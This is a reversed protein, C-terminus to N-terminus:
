LNNFFSLDWQDQWAISVRDGTFGPPYAAPTFRMPLWVYRSDRLDNKNWIDAMFIFAGPKGAVPFVFTSQAKFTIEAGPGSCPNGLVEWEGLMAGAAGIEAQNPDWGTCYSSIIFYRGKRKFVAPAERSQKEFIRTFQGSPKLYDDALRSVHTTANGESSHLLYAAGDEDQFLTMDRSEAGDPRLSGLYRYPGTPAESVAVGTRAYAYNATDLHLGMVYQRTLPNYIVKPREAVKSPHLDHSADEPVAPLVIGEDKWNYLDTSSYCHVGIVDVRHLLGKAADLNTPGNKDEGFWYYVGREYLIGGGHAQIPKGATDLWSQGPYFAHYATPMM